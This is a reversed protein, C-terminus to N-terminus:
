RNMGELLNPKVLIYSFQKGEVTAAKITTASVGLELLRHPELKDASKSFVRETLWDGTSVVSTNDLGAQTLTEEIEKDIRKREKAAEDEQLKWEQREAVLKVFQNIDSLGLENIDVVTKDIM